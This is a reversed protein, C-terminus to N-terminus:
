YTVEQEAILKQKAEVAVRNPRTLSIQDESARELEKLM